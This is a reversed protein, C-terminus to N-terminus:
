IESYHVVKSLQKISKCYECTGCGIPETDGNKIKIIRPLNVEIGTLEYEIMQEDFGIVAKDPPSEKTVAVILGELYNKRGTVLREIESYVAIQITYGYFEIFNQYQKDTNNWHRTTLDRVVKLDTLRGKEPNYSDIMIKWPIGFLEATMIVEKQGELAMMAFRDNELTKICDDLIEYKAYLSGDKKYLGPNEKKFQELVGENWAHVYKGALLADTQEQQYEGKIKALAAKECKLFDKYQSVSMYEQNAEKSFYNQKNLKM